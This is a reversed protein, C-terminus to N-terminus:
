WKNYLYEILNTWCIGIELLEMWLVSLEAFLPTSCFVTSWHALLERWRMRLPVLVRFRRERFFMWPMLFPRYPVRRSWISWTQLWLTCPAEEISRCFWFSNPLLNRRWCGQLLQCRSQQEDGTTCNFKSVTVSLLRLTSCNLSIELM